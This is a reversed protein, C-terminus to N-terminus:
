ITNFYLAFYNLLLLMASDYGIGCGRMSVSMIRDIGCVLGYRDTM